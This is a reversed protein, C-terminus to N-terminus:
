AAAAATKGVTADQLAEAVDPGNLGYRGEVNDPHGYKGAPWGSAMLRSAPHVWVNVGMGAAVGLLYCANPRQHQYESECAMDVGFVGIKSPKWQLALALMYGVSSEVWGGHTLTRHEMTRHSAGLVKDWKYATYLPRVDAMFELREAHDNGWRSVVEPHHAETVHTARMAWEPDTAMCLTRDWHSPDYGEQAPPYLGWIAVRM